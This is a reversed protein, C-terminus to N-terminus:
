LKENIRNNQYNIPIDSPANETSSMKVQGQIQNKAYGVGIKNTLSPLYNMRNIPEEMQVRHMAAQYTDSSNFHAAPCPSPHQNDDITMVRTHFNKKLEALAQLQSIRLIRKRAQPDTDDTLFLAILSKQKDTSLAKAALKTIKSSEEAIKEIFDAGKHLVAVQSAM